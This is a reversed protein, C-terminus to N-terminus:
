AARPTGAARALWTDNATTPHEGLKAVVERVEAALQQAERPVAPLGLLARVEVLPMAWHDEWSFTALKEARAGLRLGRLVDVILDRKISMGRLTGLLALIGASPARLQGYTFAQLAVESAPDTDYGTVVHWLDHSQRLRQVIYAMAPDPIEEPPHEFVDPTLGRSTLFDSYARGLTGEPLQALAPLDISHADITRHQEYLKRGRPDELFRHIRAPMGGANAYMSFVLVQDTKEPDALVKGLATFARRWRELAPLKTADILESVMNNPQNM